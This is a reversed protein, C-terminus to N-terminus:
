TWHLDRALQFCRAPHIKVEVLRTDRKLIELQRTYSGDPANGLDMHRTDKEPSKISPYITKYESVMFHAVIMVCHLVLIKWIIMKMALMM